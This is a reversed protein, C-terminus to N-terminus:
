PMPPTEARMQRFDEDLVTATITLIERLVMEPPKASAEKRIASILDAVLPALEPPALDTLQRRLQSWGFPPVSPEPPPPPWDRLFADAAQRIQRAKALMLSLRHADLDISPLDIPPTDSTM